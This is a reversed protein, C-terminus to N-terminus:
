GSRWSKSLIKRLSRIALPLTAFVAAGTRPDPSGNARYHKLSSRRSPIFITVPCVLKKELTLVFLVSVFRDGIRGKTSILM